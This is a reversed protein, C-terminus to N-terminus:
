HHHHGGPGHVHGHELEEETAARVNVVEIEFHLQKGALPHNADITVDEGSVRLVTVIDVGEPGQAQFQMGPELELDDEFASRPVSQVKDDERVGYGEEPSVSVKFKSGVSKGHLAKELGPVIDGQGHIYVLPEDHDSADLVEGADDRLTYQLWVATNNAIEM